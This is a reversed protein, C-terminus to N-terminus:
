LCCKLLMSEASVRLGYVRGRARSLGGTLARQVAGVTPQQAGARSAQSSVSTFLVWPQLTPGALLGERAPWCQILVAPLLMEAVAALETVKSSPLPHAKHFVVQFLM